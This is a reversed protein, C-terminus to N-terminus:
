SHVRLLKGVFESGVTTIRVEDPIHPHEEILGAEILRRKAAAFGPYVSVLEGNAYECEVLLKLDAIKM